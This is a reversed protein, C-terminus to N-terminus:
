GFHFLVRKPHQKMKALTAYSIIENFGSKRIISPNRLNIYDWFSELVSVSYQIILLLKKQISFLM